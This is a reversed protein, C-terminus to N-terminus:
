ELYAFSVMRIVSFSSYNFLSKIFTFSSLSFGPKFSLTLFIFVMADPGMVEYSISPYGISVTASKRKKPELIVTSPLQLWLNLIIRGRPLFAILFM